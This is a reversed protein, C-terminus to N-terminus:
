PPRTGLVARAHDGYEERIACLRQLRREALRRWETAAQHRFGAAQCSQVRRVKLHDACLDAIAQADMLAIWSLPTSLRGYEGGQLEGVNEVESIPLLRFDRDFLWGGALNEYVNILEDGIECNALSAIRQLHHGINGSARERWTTGVDRNDQFNANSDM